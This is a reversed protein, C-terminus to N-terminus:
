KEEEEFITALLAHPGHLLAIEFARRYQISFQSHPRPVSSDTMEAFEYRLGSQDTTLVGERVLLKVGNRVRERRAEYEPFVFPSDGHLNSDGLGFAKLYTAALDVAALEDLSIPSKLLPLALRLRNATELPSNFYSTKM